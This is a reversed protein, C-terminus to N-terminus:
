DEFLEAMDSEFQSVIQDRLNQLMEFFEKKCKRTAQKDTDGDNEIYSNYNGSIEDARENFTTGCDNTRGIYLVLVNELTAAIEDWVKKQSMPYKYESM